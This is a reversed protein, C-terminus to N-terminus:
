CGSAGPHSGCEANHNEEKRNLATALDRHCTERDLPGVTSVELVDVLQWIVEERGDEVGAQYADHAIAQSGRQLQRREALRQREAAILAGTVCGGYLILAGLLIYQVIM